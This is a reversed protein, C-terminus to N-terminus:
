GTQPLSIVASWSVLVEPEADALELGDCPIVRDGVPGPPDVLEIARLEPSDGPMMRDSTPSAPVDVSADPEVAPEGNAAALWHDDGNGDMDSETGSDAGDHDSSSSGAGGDGRSSSSSTEFSGYSWTEVPERAASYKDKKCNCCTSGGQKGRGVQDAHESPKFFQMVYSLVFLM